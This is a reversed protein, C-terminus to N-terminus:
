LAGIKAKESNIKAQLKAKCSSPDKTKACKSMGSQLTKVKAAQAQKKYKVMCNTKDLGSKGKCSRAAKSLFSKHIKMAAVVVAAVVAMTALAGLGGARIGAQQGLYKGTDSAAEYDSVEKLLTKDEETLKDKVEGTALLYNVQDDSAEMIFDGIAFKQEKSLNDHLKVYELAFIKLEKSM